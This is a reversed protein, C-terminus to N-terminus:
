ALYAAVAYAANRDPQGPTTTAAPSARTRTAPTTQVDRLRSRRRPGLHDGLAAAFAAVPEWAEIGAARALRRVLGWLHGASGEGVTSQLAATTVGAVM